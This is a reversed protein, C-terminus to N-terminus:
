PESIKPTIDWLLVTGDSSGSALIAGDPSFLISRVEGTHGTLIFKLTGTSVDWLRITHDSSGSALIAGDPSFLISRVEGTHGTLIFKLTGTSVDWLRITHDSSGSALTAWRSQVICEQNVQRIDLSYRRSRVRRLIRCQQRARRAAMGILM